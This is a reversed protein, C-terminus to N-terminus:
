STQESYNSKHTNNKKPIFKFLIIYQYIFIFYTLNILIINLLKYKCCFCLSVVYFVLLYFGLDQIYAM